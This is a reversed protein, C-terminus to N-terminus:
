DIMVLWDNTFVNTISNLWKTLTQLINKKNILDDDITGIWVVMTFGGHYSSPDYGDSVMM